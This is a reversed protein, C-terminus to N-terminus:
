KQQYRWRQLQIQRALARYDADKLQDAFLLIKHQKSEADLWCLQILWNSVVSHHHLQGTPLSTHQWYLTGDAALYLVTYKFPKLWAHLLIYLLYSLLVLALLYWVGYLPLLLFFLCSAVAMAIIAYRRHRSPHVTLSYESVLSFLNSLRKFLVIM